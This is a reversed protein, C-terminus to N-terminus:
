AGKKLLVYNDFEIRTWNDYFTSEGSLIPYTSMSVLYTAQLNSNKPFDTYVASVTLPFRKGIIVQKGVANGEPFLKDSLTESIAITNPKTLASSKDGEKLKITFIDFITNESWYGNQQY